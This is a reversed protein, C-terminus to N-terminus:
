GIIGCTRKNPTLTNPLDTTVNGVTPLWRTTSQWRRSAQCRCHVCLLQTTHRSHSYGKELFVSWTTKDWVFIINSTIHSVTDTATSAATMCTTGRLVNERLPCLFHISPILLCCSGVTPSHSRYTCICQNWHWFTDITWKFCYNTIPLGVDVLGQAMTGRHQVPLCSARSLVLEATLVHPKSKLPLMMM